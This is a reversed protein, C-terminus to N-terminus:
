SRTSATIMSFATNSMTPASCHEVIAMMQTTEALAYQKLVNLALRRNEATDFPHVDMGLIEVTNDRFFAIAKRVYALAEVEAFSAPLNIM